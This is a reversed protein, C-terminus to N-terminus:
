KKTADAPTLPEKLTMLYALLDAADQVTVDKLVLEPMISKDSKTLSEVNKANIRQQKGDAGRIVIQKDNQTVLFGAFVQGEDTEVVYTEYGHSIAKSPELITELLAGREYKKGIQTLDPGLDKGIGRVIHCNKCQSASSQDFITRGREPNGTLNLIEEPKIVGGLRQPRQGEPIYKEFLTRVNVDPHKTAKDVALKKADEGVDGADVWKLLVLAGGTSGMMREVIPKMQEKSKVAQKVEKWSQMDILAALADRRASEDPAHLMKGFVAAAGDARVEVATRIAATRIAASTERAEILAVIKPGLENLGAKEVLQLASAQHDAEGFLQQVVAVLAARGHFDKSPKYDTWATVSADADGVLGSWLGTTSCNFTLWEVARSRVNSPLEASTAAKAVSLFARENLMTGLRDLSAAAGDAGYAPNTLIIENIAIAGTPDLVSCLEARAVDSLGKVLKEAVAQKRNGAAVNIAEVFYRDGGAYQMALKALPSVAAADPLRALFLVLERSTEASLDSEGCLSLLSAAIAEDNYRRRLIRVALAQKASDASHLEKVVEARGAGGIRDLVWLARAAFNPDSPANLLKVLAPISQEGDALLKERALFQTALNPSQLGAIADDTSQYPGPKGIRALSM